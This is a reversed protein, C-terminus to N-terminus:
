AGFLNGMWVRARPIRSAIWVVLWALGSIRCIRDLTVVWANEPTWYVTGSLALLCVFSGFFLTILLWSIPRRVAEFRDAWADTEGNAQTEIM